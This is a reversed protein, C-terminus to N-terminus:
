SECREEKTTPTVASAGTLRRYSEVFGARAADDHAAIEVALLDEAGVGHVNWNLRLGDHRADLERV